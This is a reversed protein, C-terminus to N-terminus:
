GFWCFHTKFSFTQKFATIHTHSHKENWRYRRRGAGKLLIVIRAKVIHKFDAHDGAAPQEHHPITQGPWTCQDTEEARKQCDWNLQTLSANFLESVKKKFRRPEPRTKGFRERAM